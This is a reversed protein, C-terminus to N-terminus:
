AATAVLPDATQSTDSITLFVGSHQPSVTLTAAM